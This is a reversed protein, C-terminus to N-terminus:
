ILIKQIARWKERLKREANISLGFIIKISRRLAFYFRIYLGCRKKPASNKQGGPKFFSYFKCVTIIHQQTLLIGLPITTYVVKEHHLETTPIDVLILTYDEELEVRASEEEDLAAMIDATDIEVGLLEVIKESEQATPKVMNIWCGPKMESEEHIVNNETRYVKYM